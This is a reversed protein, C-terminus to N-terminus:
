QVGVKQTRTIRGMRDQVLHVSNTVPATEGRPSDYGNLVAQCNEIQVGTKVHVFRTRIMLQVHGLFERLGFGQGVEFRAHGRM